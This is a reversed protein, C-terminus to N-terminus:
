PVGCYRSFVDKFHALLAEVAVKPALSFASADEQKEMSVSGSKVCPLVVALAVMSSPRRRVLRVVCGKSGDGAVVEDCDEGRAVRCAAVAVAAASSVDKKVGVPLGSRWRDTALRM